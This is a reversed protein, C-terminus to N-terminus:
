CCGSFSSSGLPRSHYSPRAELDIKLRTHGKGHGRSGLASQKKGKGHPGSASIEM